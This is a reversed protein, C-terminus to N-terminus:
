VVVPVVEYDDVDPWLKKQADHKYVVTRKIAKEALYNSAFLTASTGSLILGSKPWLPDGVIMPEKQIEGVGAEEIVVIYGIIKM